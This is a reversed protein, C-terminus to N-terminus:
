QKAAGDWTRVTLVMAGRTEDWVGRLVDVGSGLELDAVFPANDVIEPTWPEVWMKRQGDPVNLRAYAIAANGTFPDMMKWNGEADVDNEDNAAYYLGGDKWTPGLYRDAHNLLGNLTDSDGVESTWMTVYGFTPGPYPPKPQGAPFKHRVAATATAITAPDHPDANEDKVLKRIAHAISAPNLNVRDKEVRTLFGTTQTRFTQHAVEPNWANM